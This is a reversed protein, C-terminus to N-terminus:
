RVGGCVRLQKRQRRMAQTVTWHALLRVIYARQRFLSAGCCLVPPRVTSFTYIPWFLLLLKECKQARYVLVLNPSRLFLVSPSYRLLVGLVDCSISTCTYRCYGCFPLWSVERGSLLPLCLFPLAAAEARLVRQVGDEIACLQRLLSLLAVKVKSWLAHKSVARTTNDGSGDGHDTASQATPTQSDNDATPTLLLQSMTLKNMSGGGANSGGAGSSTLTGTGYECLNYSLVRFLEPLLEQKLKITMFSGSAATIVGILEYLAPLVLARSADGSHVGGHPGAAGGASRAGSHHAVMSVLPASTTRRTTSVATLLSTTLQGSVEATLLVKSTGTTRASGGTGSCASLTAANDNRQCLLGHLEVVRNLIVPWTTHICPLLHATYQPPSLRVFAASMTEIVTLQSAAHPLTLFLCCRQLVDLLLQVAPTRPPTADNEKEEGMEEASPDVKEENQADLIPNEGEELTSEESRKLLLLNHAFNVLSTAAAKAAQASTSTPKNIEPSKKAPSKSTSVSFLSHSFDEPVPAARCALVRLVRLLAQLQASGYRSEVSFADINELTDCIVDRLLFMPAMAQAAADESSHQISAGLMTFVTDVILHTSACGVVVGSNNFSTNHMAYSTTPSRLQRCITDVVYDLNARFVRVVSNFCHNASCCCRKSSSLAEFQFWRVAYLHRHM